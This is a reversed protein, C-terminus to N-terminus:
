PLCIKGLITPSSAGTVSIVNAANGSLTENALVAFCIAEKSEVSIGLNDSIKVDVRNGFQSQLYNLLTKNLAGGGSVFLEDIKIKNEIYKTYNHHITKATYYTIAAIVDYKNLEDMLKYFSPLFNKGYYERGSSKPPKIKTFRDEAFLKKLLSSNVEGKSAFTGNKDFPKNFYKKAIQDILMNGPGTDFAILSKIDANKPIATINSIGGINLLARNKTKSTYMIYDFYPVLPAGQGGLAVDAVRFDGITLIGTLKALVSPDGIQLTSASNYGFMLEKKPLHHITQGHTGIVDIQLPTLNLKKLFILVSDAYIRAILFNLQCLETVNGGKFEANRHIMKKLNSPLPYTEFAIQKIKTLLGNGKVEILVIDIGDLSTGSMLGIILKKNKKSIKYLADINM